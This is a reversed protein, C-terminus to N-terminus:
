RRTLRRYIDSVKLPLKGVDDIVIYNAPGYMHPLYDRADKDITIGKDRLDKLVRDATIHTRM